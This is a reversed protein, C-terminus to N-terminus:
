LSLSMGTVMVGENVLLLSESWNWWVSNSQKLKSEIMWRETAAFCPPYLSASRVFWPSALRIFWPSAPRIFWPSTPRLGLASATRKQNSVLPSCFTIDKGEQERSTGKLLFSLGFISLQCLLM